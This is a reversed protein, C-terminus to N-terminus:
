QWQVGECGRRRGGVGRWRSGGSENVSCVKVEGVGGVWEEGGAGELRVAGACM